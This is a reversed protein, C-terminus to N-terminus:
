LMSYRSGVLWSELWQALVGPVGASSRCWVVRTWLAIPHDDEYFTRQGAPSKVDKIDSGDDFLIHKVGVQISDDDHADSSISLRKSHFKLLYLPTPPTSFRIPNGFIPEPSSTSHQFSTFYKLHLPLIPCLERKSDEHSDLFSNTPMHCLEHHLRSVPYDTASYNTATIDSIADGATINNLCDLIERILVITSSCLMSAVQLHGAMMEARSLVHNM